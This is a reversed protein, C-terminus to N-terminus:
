NKEKKIKKNKNKLYTSEIVPLSNKTLFIFEHNLIDKVNLSDALITKVLPINASARIIKKDIKGLVILTKKKKFPFNNLINVMEKTKGEKLELKDVLLLKKNEVRDSLVMLLALRKAKKNIKKKFVREKRPGFVVGGGIWIPSRISGARARGTGKQRWPKAGGGRVEGRTKTHALPQRKNAEQVVIVQHILYPNVKLGFIQPNLKEEGIVEGKQNYVQIKLNDEKM